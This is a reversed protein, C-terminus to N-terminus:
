AAFYMTVLKGVPGTQELANVAAEFSPIRTGNLTVQFHSHFHPAQFDDLFMQFLVADLKAPLAGVALTVPAPMTDTRKTGFSYGDGSRDGVDKPTVASGVM